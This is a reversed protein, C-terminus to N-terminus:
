WEFITLVQECHSRARHAVHHDVARAPALCAFTTTTLRLDVEVGDGDCRRARRGRDFIEQRQISGQRTQLECGRAQGLRDLPVEEAPQGKPLDGIRCRDRQPRDLAVPPGSARHQMELQGSEFWAWASVRSSSSEARDTDPRPM